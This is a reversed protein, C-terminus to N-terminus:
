FHLFQFLNLELNWENKQIANDYAASLARQVTKNFAEIAGQSQPHCPAGFNHDVGIGEIYSIM